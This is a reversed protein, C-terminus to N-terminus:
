DVVALTWADRQLGWGFLMIISNIIGNHWVSRFLLLCLCVAVRSAVSVWPCEAWSVMINNNIIIIIIIKLHRWSDCIIFSVTSSEQM